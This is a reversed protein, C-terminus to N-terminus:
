GVGKLIAITGALGPGAGLVRLKSHRLVHMQRPHVILYNVSHVFILIM